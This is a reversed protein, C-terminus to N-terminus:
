RISWSGSRWKLAKLFSRAPSTALRFPHEPDAAEIVIIKDEKETVTQEKGSKLNGADYAKGQDVLIAGPLRGPV